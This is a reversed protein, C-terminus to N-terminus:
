DTLRVQFYVQSTAVAQFVVGCRLRWLCALLVFSTSSHSWHSLLCLQWKILHRHIQHIWLSSVFVSMRNVAPNWLGRRGGSVLAFMWLSVVFMYIQTLIVCGGKEKLCASRSNGSAKLDMCGLGFTSLASALYELKCVAHNLLRMCLFWFWSHIRFVSLRFLTCSSKLHIM